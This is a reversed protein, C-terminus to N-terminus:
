ARRGPPPLLSRRLLAVVVDARAGPYTCARLHPPTHTGATGIRGDDVEVEVEVESVLLQGATALAENVHTGTDTHSSAAQQAAESAREAAEAAQAQMDTGVAEVAAHKAQEAGLWWLWRCWGPPGRLCLRTCMWGGLM